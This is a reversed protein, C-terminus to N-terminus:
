GGGGTGLQGRREEQLTHLRAVAHEVEEIAQRIREREAEDEVKVLGQRLQPLAEGVRKAICENGRTYQMSPETRGGRAIVAGDRESAMATPLAGYESGVVDMQVNGSAWVPAAGNQRRVDAAPHEESRGLMLESQAEGDQMSHASRVPLSQFAPAPSHHADEQSDDDKALLDAADLAEAADFPQSHQADRAPLAPLPPAAPLNGATSFPWLRLMAVSQILAVPVPGYIRSDTSDDLNDGQLWMHGRPLILQYTSSGPPSDDILPERDGPATSFTRIPTARCPPPRVTVTDGPLGLVRKCVTQDPNTPSTCIVISGLTPLGGNLHRYLYFPMTLLVDGDTSITPLMSPGICQTTSVLYKTLVHMAAGFLLLDAIQEVEEQWSGGASQQQTSAPEAARGHAGRRASARAVATGGVRGRALRTGERGCAWLRRLAGLSSPAGGARWMAARAREGEREVGAVPVRVSEVM